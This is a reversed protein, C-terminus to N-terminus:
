GVKGVLNLQGQHSQNRDEYFVYSVREQLQNAYSGLVIFFINLGLFASTSLRM